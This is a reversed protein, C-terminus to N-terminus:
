FRGGDVIANFTGDITLNGTIEGGSVQLVETAVYATNQLSNDPFQM